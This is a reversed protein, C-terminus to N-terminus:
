VGGHGNPLWGNSLLHVGTEMFSQGDALLRKADEAAIEMRRAAWKQYVTATEPISRVATLETAFESALTADSQMRDFWNRNMQQLKGVLEKQMAVFEEFRKKGMAAFEPPILDSPILNPPLLKEAKNTHPENRNM